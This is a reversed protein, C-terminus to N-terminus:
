PRPPQGAIWAALPHDPHEDLHERVLVDLRHTEGALYAEGIAVLQRDRTATALAGARVLLEPALTLLAAAVLLAPSLSTPAAVLVEAAASPDDGILRDLLATTSDPM